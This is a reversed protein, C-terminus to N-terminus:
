LSKLLLRKGVNDVDRRRFISRSLRFADAHKALGLWSAVSARAAERDMEGADVRRQLAPLRRWLRRVSRRRVRSRGDAHHVYGVLDCPEDIPTVIIRRPNLRLRLRDRLFTRVAELRERAERRDSALLLFDDM